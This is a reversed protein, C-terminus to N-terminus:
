WRVKLGTRFFHGNRDYKLNYWYVFSAGIRRMVIGLEEEGEKILIHIHNGMLCYGYIQYGSKDKYKNLIELFMHAYEQEEFIMQRNIGRLIMHYIKTSSKRRVTRQVQM